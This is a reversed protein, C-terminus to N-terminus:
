KSWEVKTREDSSTSSWHFLTVVAAVGLSGDAYDDLDSFVEAWWFVLGCPKKHSFISHWCFILSYLFLLSTAVASTSSPSSSSLLFCFPSKTGNEDWMGGLIEYCCHLGSQFLPLFPGKTRPLPLLHPFPVGWTVPTRLDAKTGHMLVRFSLSTM